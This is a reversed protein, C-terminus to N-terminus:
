VRLDRLKAMSKPMFATSLTYDFDAMIMLNRTGDIRIKNVKDRLGDPDRIHLCWDNHEDCRAMM